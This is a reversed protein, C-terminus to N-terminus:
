MNYQTFSYRFEFTDGARYSRNFDIRVYQQGGETYYSAKKINGSLAKINDVNSNPVGIKVWTLPGEKNSLVSWTIQYDMNLSGDNNVSVTITYNDIRDIPMEPTEWADARQAPVIFALVSVAVMLAIMIRAVTNRIRM